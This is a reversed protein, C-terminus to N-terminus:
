SFLVYVFSMLSVPFIASNTSFNNGETISSACVFAALRGPMFLFPFQPHSDATELLSVGRKRHQHFLWKFM